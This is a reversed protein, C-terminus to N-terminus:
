SRRRRLAAWGTTVITALQERLLVACVIILAGELLSRLLVNDFLLWNIAAGTLAAVLTLVVYGYHKAMKYYHESVATTVVIYAVAGIAVGIAAGVMGLHPILLICSGGTVVLTIAAIIMSWYTKKVINIGMGTTIGLTFCVPGLFLFPFFQGAGRYQQGLLLMIAGQFLTALLVFFILATAVLRHVSWFNTEEDQYHRYVYPAWLVSFGAQIVNVTAALAVAVSYVGISKFGEMTRLVIQSVSSNGWFLVTAPVLPLAYVALERAYERSPKTPRWDFNRRHTIVFVVMWLATSGTMLALAPRYSGSFAGAILYLTSASLSVALGQITYWKVSNQMRYLQNLFRAATSAFLFLCLLAAVFFTQEGVLESSVWRWGALIPLSLVLTFLLPPAICTTLLYEKTRNGPPEHYFRVFASDLGLYCLAILLGGYTKFMNIRGLQDPDYLRTSIPASLFGIVFTLWTLMSFGVLSKLLGARTDSDAM